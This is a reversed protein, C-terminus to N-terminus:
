VDDKRRVAMSGGVSGGITAGVVLVGVLVLIWFNRRRVGLITAHAKTAGSEGQGTPEYYHAHTEEKQPAVSYTHPAGPYIRPADSYAEPAEHFVEPRATTDYAVEPAHAM